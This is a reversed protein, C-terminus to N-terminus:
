AALPVSRYEEGNAILAWIIRANKNALAVASRNPGKRQLLDLAWRSQRDTRRAAFRLAIRAGHILLTRIYVDGRKSIGFLRQKGGTSHERPTLGIWAAFQRGNQFVGVDGVAAVIATATIYGVGPIAVLRKCVAHAACISRLKGDLKEIRAHIEHYEELLGYFTERALSSFLVGQALLIEPLCKAFTRRGLPMVIGYETLLGRAENVLATRSTILRQRIRHLNQLDQQSVSRKPVFRMHPQRAAVCIAEADKWDTKNRQVYPKVYQPAILQPCHGLAEIERAWHNSGGCAEMVVRCATLKQLSDLLESRYVRKRFVERGQGDVGHLHFVNKALDIGILELGM